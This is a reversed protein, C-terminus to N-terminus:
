WAKLNLRILQDEDTHGWQSDPFFKAAIRRSLFFLVGAVVCVGILFATLLFIALIMHVLQLTFSREPNYKQDWSVSATVDFQDMLASATQANGANLVLFVYSHHRRGYVSDAGKDQNLGLFNTLAGFRVRAIQPTPYEISMLTPTGKGSQYRGLQVEASQEFGILDTRFSALVRKAAEPGVLYKESGQMLGKPPMPRPLVQMVSASPQSGGVFILLAQHDNESLQSDHGRLFRIFNSGRAMLTQNADGIALQIGREPSMASTQYFTLLGYAAIPDPTPEVVVQTRTKGLQYTRLELAKVGYEQEVAPEGGYKSIAVLPLAQSDAQRWDAAPVVPIFRPKEQAFCFLPLATCVAVLGAHKAFIRAM